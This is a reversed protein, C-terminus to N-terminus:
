RWALISCVFKSTAAMGVRRHRIYFGRCRATAWVGTAFDVLAVGVRQVGGDLEGTVSMIGTYAQIAADYAPRGDLPGEGYSRVSCLVM